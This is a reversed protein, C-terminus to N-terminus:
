TTTNIIRPGIGEALAVVRNSTADMDHDPVVRATTIADRHPEERTSTNREINGRIFWLWTSPACGLSTPWSRRTVRRIEELIM